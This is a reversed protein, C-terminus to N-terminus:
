EEDVLSAKWRTLQAVIFARAEDEPMYSAASPLFGYAEEHYLAGEDELPDAGPRRTAYLEWQEHRARFYWRGGGRVTGLAQLPAAGGLSEIVIWTPVEASAM